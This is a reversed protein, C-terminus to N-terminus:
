PSTTSCVSRASSSGRWLLGSISVRGPLRRRRQEPGRVVRDSAAIRNSGWSLVAALVLASLTGLLAASTRLSVGHALYIVAYLIAAAAVLAVPVATGRRAARAALVACYRSRWVSRGDGAARAVARGRRDRGRFRAWSGCRCHAASTSSRTRPGGRGIMRGVSGFTTAARALHPNDQARAIELLHRERIPVPTSLGDSCM